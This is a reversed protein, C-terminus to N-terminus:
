STCVLVNYQGQTFQRLAEEQESQKMGAESASGQNNGNSKGNVNATGKGQGVFKRPKLATELKLVSVIEKHM